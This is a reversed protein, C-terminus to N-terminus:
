RSTLAVVAVVALAGLAFLGYLVINAWAVVRAATVLGRGGRAGASAEIARQADGALVVAVIALVVPCVVWALIAVVLAAVATGDNPPAAPYYYGTPYASGPPGPWPGPQQPPGGAAPDETM